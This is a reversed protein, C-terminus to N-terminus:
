GRHPKKKKKKKKKRFSTREDEGLGCVDFDVKQTFSNVQLRFKTARFKKPRSGWFGSLIPGRFILKKASKLWPVM